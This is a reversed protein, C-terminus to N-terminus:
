GRSRGEPENALVMILRTDCDVFPLANGRAVLEPRIAEHGFCDLRLTTLCALELGLLHLDGVAAVRAFALTVIVHTESESDVPLFQPATLRVM